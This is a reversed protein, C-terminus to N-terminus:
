KSAHTFYRTSPFQSSGVDICSGRVINRVADHQEDQGDIERPRIVAYTAVQTIDCRTDYRDYRAQDRRCRMQDHIRMM